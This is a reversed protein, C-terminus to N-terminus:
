TRAQRRPTPAMGEDILWTPTRAIAGKRNLMEALSIESKLQNPSDLNIGRQRFYAKHRARTADSYTLRWDVGMKHLALVPRMRDDINVFDNHSLPGFSLGKLPLRAFYKRFVDQATQDTWDSVFSLNLKRLESRRLRVEIRLIRACARALRERIETDINKSTQVQSGKAYVSIMYNKSGKPALAVYRQHLNSQCRQSALLHKLQKIASDVDEEYELRFNVALDIRHLRVDGAMLRNSIEKSVPIDLYKLIRRIAPSVANQVNDSTWVNQGYLHAYPSGQVFLQGKSSGPHSRYRIYLPPASELAPVSKRNTRAQLIEGESTTILSILTNPIELTINEMSFDVTDINVQFDGSLINSYIDEMNIKTFQHIFLKHALMKPDARL